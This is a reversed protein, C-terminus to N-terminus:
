SSARARPVLEDVLAACRRAVATLVQLEADLERQRAVRRGDDDTGAGALAEATRVATTHLETARTAFTERLLRRTRRLADRTEKRAVVDVEELYLAVAREAEARLVRVQSSRASQWSKGALVTSLVLAVPLVVPVAIGVVLGVAHTVMAGTAGGRVAALGLEFQTARADTVTGLVVGRASGADVRATELDIGARLEWASSGFQEAVADAAADVREALLRTHALLAETTRRQVWPALDAVLRTPHMQRLQDATDRRISRLRVTLDVELDGHLDDMRDALVQQWRSGVGRLEAARQTAVELARLRAPDPGHDAAGSRAATVSSRVQGLVSMAVAVAAAHGTGATADAAALLATTLAPFGSDVLLEDDQERLGHHRLPSSVGIVDADIGRAQLHRRDAELVRRWHPHVDTKTVVCVVTPCLRSAERLLDLEPASYESSADAVFLVVDARALARLAVTAHTAALGGGVGPTDVLVVGAALLERPVEVELGRVSPGALGRATAEARAPDLVVAPGNTEGDGLVRATPTPGWRVWTPVATAIDADTPCVRANLLANLLSSKGKKFEGVVVVHCQPSAVRAAAADLRTLLDERHHRVAAARAAALVSEVREDRSQM